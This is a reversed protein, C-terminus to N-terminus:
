KRSRNKKKVSDVNLNIIDKEKNQFQNSKKTNIIM